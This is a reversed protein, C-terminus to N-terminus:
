LLYCMTKFIRGPRESDPFEEDITKIFGISFDFLPKYYLQRTILIAILCLISVAIQFAKNNLISKCDVGM